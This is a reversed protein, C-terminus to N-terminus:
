FIDCSALLLVVLPLGTSMMDIISGSGNPLYVAQTDKVCASNNLKKYGWNCRCEGNMCMVTRVDHNLYCEGINACTDSLLKKKFCRGFRYHDEKACACIKNEDQEFCIAGPVTASCQVDQSCFEGYSLIPVCSNVAAAVYNSKCVCVQWNCESNEPRCHENKECTANIGPICQGEDQSFYHNEKCECVKNCTTNKLKCDETVECAEGLGAATRICATENNNIRTGDPCSCVGNKCLIESKFGKIYCDRKQKCTEGVKKNIWCFLESKVYHSNANCVCKNGKCEADPGFIYCEEDQFCKGGHKMTVNRCERNDRSAVTGYKCIWIGAQCTSNKISGVDDPSCPEGLEPICKADEHPAFHGRNCRCKGTLDCIANGLKDCIDEKGTCDSGVRIETDENAAVTLVVDTDISLQITKKSESKKVCVFDKCTANEFTCDFDIMCEEGVTKRERRCTRYERQYYGPSCECIKETMNCTSAEFDANVYCDIIQECKEALGVYRNCRGHLYYSGPGCVCVNDVCMAGSLLYASCQVTDVCKDHLGTAVKVCSTMDSNYIYGPACQCEHNNCTSGTATCENDSKCTWKSSIWAIDNTGSTHEESLIGIDLTFVNCVFFQLYLLVYVVQRTQQM